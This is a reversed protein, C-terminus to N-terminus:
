SNKNAHVVKNKAIHFRVKRENVNVFVNIGERNEKINTRFIENSREFYPRLRSISIIDRTVNGNVKCAGNHCVKANAYHVKQQDSLKRQDRALVRTMHSM